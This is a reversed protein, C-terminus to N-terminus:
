ELAELKSEELEPLSTPGEIEPNAKVIAELIQVMYKVSQDTVRQNEDLKGINRNMVEIKKENTEGALVHNGFGSAAGILGITLGVFAWGFAGLKVPIVRGDKESRIYPFKSAERDVYGNGGKEGAM